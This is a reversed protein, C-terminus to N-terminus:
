APQTAPECAPCGQQETPKALNRATSAPHSISGTHKLIAAKLAEKIRNPVSRRRWEEAGNHSSLLRLAAQLRNKREGDADEILSYLVVKAVDGGSISALDAQVAISPTKRGHRWDSLVQKSTGLKAALQVDNGVKAAAGSILSNIRQIDQM